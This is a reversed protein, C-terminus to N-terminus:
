QNFLQDLKWMGFFVVFWTVVLSVRYAWPWEEHFAQFLKQLKM